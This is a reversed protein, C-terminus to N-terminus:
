LDANTQMALAHMQQYYRLIPQSTGAATTSQSAQQGIDAMIAQALTKAEIARYRSASGRLLPNTLPMIKSALHEGLRYEPRAGLLLSPRYLYLQAFNLQMLQQELEGKVRNYFFASGADAGVASVSFCLKAGARQAQKAALLPLQQDVMRFAEQSGAKKITTGLCNIIGDLEFDFDQSLLAQLESQLLVMKRHSQKPARRCPAYVRTLQPWQLLNQLLEGGVLGTAGLLMLKM